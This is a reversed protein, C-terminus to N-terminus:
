DRGDWRESGDELSAEFGGRVVRTISGGFDDEQGSILDVEFTPESYRKGTQSTISSRLLQGDQVLRSRANTADLEARATDRETELLKMGKKLLGNDIMATDREDMLAELQRQLEEINISASTSSRRQKTSENELEMRLENVRVEAQRLETRLHDNEEQYTHRLSAEVNQVEFRLEERVRFEAERQADEMRRTASMEEARLKAELLEVKARWEAQVADYELDKERMAELSVVRQRELAEIRATIECSVPPLPPPPWVAGNSYAEMAGDYRSAGYDMTAVQMAPPM